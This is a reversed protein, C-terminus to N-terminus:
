RHFASLPNVGLAHYALNGLGMGGYRMCNMEIPLLKGKDLKFEGHIM